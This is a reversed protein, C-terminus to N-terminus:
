GADARPPWGGLAFVLCRASAPCASAFEVSRALATPVTARDAPVFGLGSFHDSATTTLVYVAELKAGRAAALRDAVLARGFGQGRVNEAVAVSRLLGVNGYVELGGCGLVEGDQNAVVYGQPFQDSVGATPLGGREVLKVVRALDDAAAARIQV